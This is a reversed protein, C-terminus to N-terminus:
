WRRHRDYRHRDYHHRDYHHRGHERQWEHRDRRHNATERGLLYKDRFHAWKSTGTEQIELAPTNLNDVTSAEAGTQGGFILLGAALAILTRKM